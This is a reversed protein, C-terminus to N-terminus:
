VLIIRKKYETKKLLHLYKTPTINSLENFDKIMHSQDYYGLETALEILNLGNDEKDIENMNYLLHQFRILKCFVKPALGFEDNFMKGVYRESYGSAMALDSVKIQGKSEIIKKVLFERMGEFTNETQYTEINRLYKDMFFQMQYKFDHSSTIREFLEQDDLLDSLSVEQEILDSMKANKFKLMHGPLFRVGFYYKNKEFNVLKPKLVTGCVSAYPAENDCCFLIDVCGDPVASITTDLNGDNYFSYFHSIGYRMVEAKYYRTSALVFYPQKPSFSGNKADFDM